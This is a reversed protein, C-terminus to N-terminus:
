LFPFDAGLGIPEASSSPWTRYLHTNWNVVTNFWPQTYRVGAVIQRTVSALYIEAVVKHSTESFVKMPVNNHYLHTNLWHTAIPANSWFAERNSIQASSLNTLVRIHGVHSHSQRKKRQCSPYDSWNGNSRCEILLSRDTSSNLTYGHDCTINLTTQYGYSAAPFDNGSWYDTYKEYNSNPVSPSFCM